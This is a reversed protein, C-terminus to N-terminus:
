VISRRRSVAIEVSCNRFIETKIKRNPKNPIKTKRRFKIIIMIERSSNNSATLRKNIM